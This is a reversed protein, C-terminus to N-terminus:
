RNPVLCIVPTHKDALFTQMAIIFVPTNPVDAPWLLVVSSMITLRQCSWEFTLAPAPCQPLFATM